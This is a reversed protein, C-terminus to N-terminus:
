EMSRKWGREFDQLSVLLANSIARPTDAGSSLEELIMKVRYMGYRDVMHRVASLSLLYAYTAQPGNLGLFSGELDSLSPVKGAQSLQRLMEQQRPSVERGEFYQALGENLWTPV